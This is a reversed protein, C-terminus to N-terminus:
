FSFKLAVQMIRPDLATLIQGFQTSNRGTTVTMARFGNTLNFAEGRAEINMKERIRFVRALAMDVGYYGPGPINSRGLNGLTGNAPQAFAAPNIWSVCPATNACPSGPNDVLPNPLIQNPRQGGAGTLAFDIGTTATQFAGSLIRYSTALTWGTAAMRVAQNQFRPTQFVASFNLNHRRDLAQTGDLTGTQCNGRDRRRDNRDSYTGGTGGVLSGITIDGICHSWTYNANFSVGRSLRKEVHLLLGHYSSTGGSEFQDVFGLYQGEQPKTLSAIRRANTNATSNCNTATSACAGTLPGPVIVAPNLQFSTWVHAAETGL